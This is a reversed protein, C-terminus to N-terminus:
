ETTDAHQPKIATVPLTEWIYSTYNVDTYAGLDSTGIAASGRQDTFIYSGVTTDRAPSSIRLAQTPPPAATTRSRHCGPM